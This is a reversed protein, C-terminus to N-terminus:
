KIKSKMQFFIVDSKEQSLKIVINEILQSLKVLKKHYVIVVSKSRSTNMNFYIDSQYGFFITSYLKPFIKIYNNHYQNILVILHILNM